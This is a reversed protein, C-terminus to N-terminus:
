ARRTQRENMRKSQVFADPVANRFPQSAVRLSKSVIAAPMPAGAANGRMEGRIQECPIQGFQEIM